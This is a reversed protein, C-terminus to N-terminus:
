IDGVLRLAEESCKCILVASCVDSHKTLTVKVEKTVPLVKQRALAQSFLTSNGRICLTLVVLISM